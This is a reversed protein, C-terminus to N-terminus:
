RPDKCELVLTKSEVDFSAVELGEAPRAGPTVVVPGTESAASENGRDDVVKVGFRYEGMSMPASVWDVTDADIGFEGAGFVGRGFGVAAACDWGFDSVGFGAM